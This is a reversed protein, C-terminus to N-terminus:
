AVRRADFRTAPDILAAQARILALEPAGLRRTEEFLAHVGSAAQSAAAEVTRGELRRALFLACFIDGAGYAPADVRPTAVSWAAEATVALTEIENDAHLGTVVVCGQGAMPLARAAAIAQTRDHVPLGSLLELEFANPTLIDAAPLLAEAIAAPIDAAVFRGAPRDGIVPDLCYIADPRAAKTADVARRVAYANEATGLYGSLVAGVEALFGREALGDVLADIEAAPTAAGAYGGHKPHNSFRVTDIRVVDRGARQLVFAAASNGVHGYAVSSQLTLVLDSNEPEM